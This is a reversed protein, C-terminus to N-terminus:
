DALELIARGNRDLEAKVAAVDGISFIRGKYESSHLFGELQNIGLAFFTGYEMKRTALGQFVIEKVIEQDPDQKLWALINKAVAESVTYIRVAGSKKLYIEAKPDTLIFRKDKGRCLTKAFEPDIRGALKM